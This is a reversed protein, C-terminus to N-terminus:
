ASARRPWRSSRAAGGTATRTVGIAPRLGRRGRRLQVQRGDPEDRDGADRAGGPQDLRLVDRGTAFRKVITEVPEVEDLPVPPQRRAQLRAPRAAHRAQPESRQRADHVGQLDRYQSAGRPTSSSSSRIRISCTSSATAAGSTSAARSSSRRRRRAARFPTRTASSCKAAGRRRTRRRRHAVGHSTFYRDVFARELGIAEFIQAGCYSQLTSIGMKSM